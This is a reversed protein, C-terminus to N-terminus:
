NGYTKLLEESLGNKGAIQKFVSDVPELPVRAFDTTADPAWNPDSVKGAFGKVGFLGMDQSWGDNWEYDYNLTWYCYGVVPVGQDIADHLASLTRVLKQAKGTPTDIFGSETVLEPLHYREHYRVLTKTMGPPEDPGDNPCGLAAIVDPFAERLAPSCPVAKLPPLFNDSQVVWAADYYNVGVYDLTGGWADHVEIPGDGVLSTDFGGTTVADLFLLNYAHHVREAAAEDAAHRPEWDVSNHAFGVQAEPRVAKIARYTAAHADIMRKLVDIPTQQFPLTPQDLSLNQFGPPFNGAMYGALLVVLPEDLTIWWHVEGGFEHALFEGYRAMAQATTPGAWGGLSDNTFTQTADDWAGPDDVWKPLSFHTVTVIPELGRSKLSQLVQHYHAVENWDVDDHGLPATPDAPRKPVLRAWEIGLQFASLSLSKVNAADTDFLQYANQALGARPAKGLAEFAAWDSNVNAGESEQPSSAVGWLFGAPFPALHPPACAALLLLIPWTKM